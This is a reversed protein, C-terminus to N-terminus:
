SLRSLVLRSKIHHGVYKVFSSQSEIYKDKHKLITGSNQAIQRSIKNYLLYFISSSVHFGDGTKTSLFMFSYYSIQMRTNM